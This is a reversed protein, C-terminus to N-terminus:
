SFVMMSYYSAAGCHTSNRVSVFGAGTQGARNLAETMAYHGVVFGLGRDGDVVATAQAHSDMKIAPRPNILGEKIRKVYRAPNKDIYELQVARNFFAKLIAVTRNVHLDLKLWSKRSFQLYQGFANGGDFFLQM